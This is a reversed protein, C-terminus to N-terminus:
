KGQRFIVKSESDYLTLGVSNDPAVYMGVRQNGRKDHLSVMPSGDKLVVLSITPSKADGFGSLSAEGDSDLSLNLRLKGDNGMFGIGAYGNDDVSLTLRPKGAKDLFTQVLGGEETALELRKRGDRDRLVLREAELTEGGKRQSASLAVTSATLCAAIFYLYKGRACSHLSKLCLDFSGFITKLPTIGM